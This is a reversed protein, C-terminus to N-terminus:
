IATLLTYWITCIHAVLVSPKLIWLKIRLLTVGPVIELFPTILYSIGLLFSIILLRFLMTSFLVLSQTNLYLIKDYTHVISYSSPPPSLEHHIIAHIMDIDFPKKSVQACEGNNVGISITLMPLANWVVRLFILGRSMHSPNISRM